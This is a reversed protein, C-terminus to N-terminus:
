YEPPRRGAIVDEQIQIMAAPDLCSRIVSQTALDKARAVFATSLNSGALAALTRESLSRSPMDAPIRMLADDVDLIGADIRGTEIERVFKLYNLPV